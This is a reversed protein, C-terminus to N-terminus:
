NFPHPLAVLTATIPQLSDSGFVGFAAQLLKTVSLVAKLRIRVMCNRLLKNGLSFAGCTSNRQFLQRLDSLPYLSRAPLLPRSM